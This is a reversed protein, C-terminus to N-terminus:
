RNDIYFLVQKYYKIFHENYLDWKIDVGDISFVYFNDFMPLINDRFNVFKENLDDTLHFEGAIKKVNNKIYDLNEESFIDYEGGECDTKLFDIKDICNNIRFDKFTIGRSISSEGCWEIDLTKETSIAGRVFSVPFGKLNRYMTRFHTEVPEMIWCHEPEKDLISYTFSGVFGGLDVVIDGKEVEFFREYIRDEAEKIMFNDKHLGVWDFNNFTM